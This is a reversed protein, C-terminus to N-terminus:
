EEKGTSMAQEASKTFELAVKRARIARRITESWSVICGASNAVPLTDGPELHALLRKEDHANLERLIDSDEESLRVIATIRKRPQANHSM